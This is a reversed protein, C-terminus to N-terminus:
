IKKTIVHYLGSSTWRLKPPVHRRRRSDFRRNAKLGSYPTIDCEWQSFRLYQMFTKAAFIPNKIGGGSLIVIREFVARNRDSKLLNHLRGGFIFNCLFRRTHVSPIQIHFTSKTSVSKEPRVFKAKPLYLTIL